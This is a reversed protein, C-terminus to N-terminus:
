YGSFLSAAVKELRISEVLAACFLCAALTGPWDSIDFPCDDARLETEWDKFFGSIDALM